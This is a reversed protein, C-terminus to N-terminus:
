RLGMEWQIQQLTREPAGPPLICTLTVLSATPGYFEPDFLRLGMANGYEELMETTMRDKIRRASYCELREFPLPDGQTYFQWRGGDNMAMVTREIHRHHQSDPTYTEFGVAGYVGRRRDYAGSLTNPRADVVLGRCSLRESVVSIPSKVEGGIHNNAFLAVWPSSTELVLEKTVGITLPELKPLLQPLSGTLPATTVKSCHCERWQVLEKVVKEFPADFFGWSFTLPAFQNDPLYPM